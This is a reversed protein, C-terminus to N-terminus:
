RGDLIERTAQALERLSAPKQLFSVRGQEVQERLEDVDLNGSMFLIPLTPARTYLQQALEAGGLEPMRVDTLVLDVELGADVRALAERGNHALEVNYGLLGLLKATSRRVVDDDEVLLIREDGKPMGVVARKPAHQVAQSLPLYLHFSTGVGLKSEVEVHGGAQTIVAYVNALGLGSGGGAAKTTFFPDFIRPLVDAPIGVGTDRVTLCAFPERVMPGTAVERRESSYELTGGNPMADVANVALNILIQDFQTPDIRIPLPDTGLQVDLEVREGVVHRLLKAASALCDNLETDIPRVVQRRGFTMLGAVLDRAVGIVRLIEAVHTQAEHSLSDDVDLLEATGVIGALLNNFDHAIGGALSGVAEMRQSQRIREELARTKTMEEILAICGVIQGHQDFLPASHIRVEVIGGDKRQRTSEAATFGVRERNITNWLRQFTERENEPVLPYPRGLVEAETWGFMQEAARSWMTVVMERDVSIIALPSSGVIVELQHRIAELERVVPPNALQRVLVTHGLPAVRRCALELVASPTARLVRHSGQEPLKSLEPVLEALPRGVAGMSAPLGLLQTFAEDLDIITGSADVLCLGVPEDGGM